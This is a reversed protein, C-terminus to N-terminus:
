AYADYAKQNEHVADQLNMISSPDNIHPEGRNHWHYERSKPMGLPYLLKMLYSAMSMCSSHIDESKDGEGEEGEAEDKKEDEVKLEHAHSVEPEALGYSFTQEIISELQDVPSKVKKTVPIVDPFPRM